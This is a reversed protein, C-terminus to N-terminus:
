FKLFVNGFIDGPVQGMILLVQPNGPGTTHERNRGKDAHTGPIPGHGIIVLAQWVPLANKNAPASLSSLLGEV